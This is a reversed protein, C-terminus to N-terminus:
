SFTFIEKFKQFDKQTLDNFYKKADKKHAYHSLEKFKQIDGAVYGAAFEGFVNEVQFVDGPKVQEVADLSTLGLRQYREANKEAGRFSGKRSYKKTWKHTYRAFVIAARWDDFGAQIRGYAGNQVTKRYLNMSRGVIEKTKPHGLLIRWEFKPNDTDDEAYNGYTAFERPQLDKQKIPIGYHLTLVEGIWAIDSVVSSSNSLTRELERFISNPPLQPPMHRIFNDTLEDLEEMSSIDRSISDHELIESKVYCKQTELYIVEVMTIHKEEYLREWQQKVASKFDKM